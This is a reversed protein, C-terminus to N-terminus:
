AAACENVQRLCFILGDYYHYRALTVFDNVNVPSNVPDLRITFEGAATVVIREFVINKLPVKTTFSLGLGPWGYRDGLFADADRHDRSSRGGHELEKTCEAEIRDSGPGSRQQRSRDGLYTWSHM